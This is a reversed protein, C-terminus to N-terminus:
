QDKPNVKHRALVLKHSATQFSAKASDWDTEGATELRSSATKAEAWASDLDKSASANAAKSKTEVEADFDDLKTQWAGVEEQAKLTFSNREAVPDHTTAVSTANDSLPNSQALAPLASAVVLAAVALPTILMKM